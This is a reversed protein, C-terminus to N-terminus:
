TYDPFKLRVQLKVWELSCSPNQTFLEAQYSCMAKRRESDIQAHKPLPKAQPQSPKAAKKIDRVREKSYAANKASWLRTLATEKDKAGPNARSWSQRVAKIKKSAWTRLDQLMAFTVGTMAVIFDLSVKKISPKARKSGDPKVEFIRHSEWAGSKELSHWTSWYRKNPRGDSTLFREGAANMIEAIEVHQVAKFDGNDCPTGVRLCAWSTRSYVAKLMLVQAERRESRNQRFGGKSKRSTDLYALVPMSKPDRYYSEVRSFILEVLAPYKKKTSPQQWSTFIPTAKNHGCRNGSINLQLEM